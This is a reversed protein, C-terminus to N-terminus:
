NVAEKLVDSIERPTREKALCSDRVNGTRQPFEFSVKKVKQFMIMAVEFTPETDGRNM